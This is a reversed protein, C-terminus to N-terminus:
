KFRIRPWQSIFIGNKSVMGRFDFQMVSFTVKRYAFLGTPPAVHHAQFALAFEGGISPDIKQLAAIFYFFFRSPEDDAEDLALWIVPLKAQKVWEAALASKGYGAPASILTLPRASALGDNLRQILHPRTVQNPSPAPLFLKSTRISPQASGSNGM